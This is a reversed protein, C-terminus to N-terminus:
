YCQSTKLALCELIFTKFYFLLIQKAYTHTNPYTFVIKRHLIHQANSISLLLSLILHIMSTNIFMQIHKELIIHHAYTLSLTSLPLIFKVHIYSHASFDLSIEGACGVAHKVDTRSFPLNIDVLCELLGTDVPFM